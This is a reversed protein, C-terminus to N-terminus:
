TRLYMRLKELVVEMDLPKGVHSNMGSELSKDIDEKFVNATMAVIPITKANPLNFERIRRTAEYGDMEPMQIDMFIMEYKEPASSFMRVAEAGNGACDIELNTPELMAIVIERNIEVDDVLLIRRGKFLGDLIPPGEEAPPPNLGLCENIADEISTPFLPKSLFKDVGAKKADEAANGLEAASIMIVVDNNSNYVESKLMATLTIGDIGPMQWDIFYINYSGNRAILRLAEEGNPATDCSIGLGHMIEKLNELVGPDDDVILVRLNSLNVSPALLGQRKEEGREAHFTFGFISGRGVESDVWVAGGMMEVINKSIALGLGTGGFRRTNSSEAQQFSLFLYEQQEPSIGIGTDSVAIKITCVGDKEGLFYTDLSISGHEPTFKVANGLFNTIVQSLRQDDGILVRPINKDLNIKFNQQKEDIRFTLINVVRQLMKEFYFTVSSLEFKNAEIKSIDLIDNIVGLLHKSADAIKSFCHDKREIDAAVRGITGMGIIANMPTRMEHSMNALFVSKAQSAAKARELADELERQLKLFDTVEDTSGVVGTIEGDPSYIPMTASHFIRDNIDSTWDQPGDRFTKEVQDVIDLYKNKNRVFELKKGEFFSSKMGMRTVYQGSFTTLTGTTDVSWIIGKYNNIIAELKNLTRHMGQTMENRQVASVFLLGWSYLIFVEVESFVHKRHYDDFSIFGWFEDEVYIPMVLLSQIGSAGLRSRAPEEFSEVPGNVSLGQEFSEEWDPLIDKYIFDRDGDLKPLEEGAWQDVLRYNLANNNEQQNQWISIRDVEICRAIMEIGQTMSVFNNELDSGLLLVAANNVEQTLRHQRNIETTRAKVLDELRRGEGRKRQLLIIVLLVTLLLTIAGVIWPFQAQTLKTRYDYTKRIWHETIIKTDMLGLAKEVISSLIPADKNFGFASDFTYDFIVNAKYGTNERYHTIMLLHGENAMLMDVEGRELADMAAITAQYEVTNKHDPFWGNFVEAYATDNIIGIKQYWIEDLSIDRFDSKSIIAYFDTMIPTDAWLFLDRRDTSRVLGALMAAEGNELMSLLVQWPTNEDHALEFRLGTLEEVEKLMDFAIGHWNKEYSNYFSVPYNTNSAAFPVVPRSQIYALEEESFQAFLKHRRYEKYGRVHLENLYRIGGSDLAKQVVSIIPALAPSQTALSVPAFVLPYFDSMVVDGYDDFAAELPSPTFFADVEGSKLAEYASETDYVLTIEYEGQLLRIVSATAAANPLFAYRIPRFAAIESLPRANELRFTKVMHEAIASTMYLTNRSDYVATLEGTFDIEHTEFGALLDGWGYIAPRFPIGFLGTLWECFFATFGRIEGDEGRFTDASPEMAYVFSDRQGKLAEIARMEEATVGPIERYSSYLPPDPEMIQGSCGLFLTLILMAFSIVRIM